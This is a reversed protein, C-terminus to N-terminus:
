RFTLREECGWKGYGCDHNFKAIHQASTATYGYVWRLIDYLTDTNKDIFAVLTGYSQLVIFRNTHAYQAKCSRLRKWNSLGGQASIEDMCMKTIEKIRANIKEQEQKKM